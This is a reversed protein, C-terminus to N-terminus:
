PASQTPPQMRPGQLHSFAYLTRTRASSLSTKALVGGSRHSAHCTVCSSAIAKRSLSVSGSSGIVAAEVDVSARNYDHRM